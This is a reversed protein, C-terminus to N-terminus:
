RARNVEFLLVKFPAKGVNKVSHVDSASLGAVGAKNTRTMKKGDKDTFEATSPTVFIAALDPHGHKPSSQGPKYEGEVIRIGLEDKKVKYFASAVKTADKTPDYAITGPKRNVEMMYVKITTKGTNKVSHTEAPRINYSGTAMENVTKKGDKDTFEATGGSVVYLAYDPHMHMSSSEGPRYTAELLRMGLTDQIVKYLDPNAAIADPTSPKAPEPKAAVETKASAVTDAAMSKTDDAKKADGGCSMLFLSACCAVITGSKIIPNM